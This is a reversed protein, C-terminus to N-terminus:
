AVEAAHAAPMANQSTANQAVVRGQAADCGVDALAARVPETDVGDAVVAAGLDHALEIVRRLLMTRQPASALPAVLSSDLRVINPQLTELRALNSYGAGFHDLAIGAGVGRL